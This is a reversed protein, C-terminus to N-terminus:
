SGLLNLATGVTFDISQFLTTGLIPGKPGSGITKRDVLSMRLPCRDSRPGALHGAVWISGFCPSTPKGSCTAHCSM